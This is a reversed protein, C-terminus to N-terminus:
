GVGQRVATRAVVASYVCSVVCTIEFGWVVNLKGSAIFKVVGYWDSQAAGCCVAVAGTSGVV